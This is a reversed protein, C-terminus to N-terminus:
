NSLLIINVQILKKSNNVPEKFIMFTSLQGVFNKCISIMSIRANKDIKPYDLPLNVIQKDNIIATFQPRTFSPKEHETALFYWRKPLFEGILIGNSEVALIYSLSM